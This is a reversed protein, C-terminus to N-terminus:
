GNLATSMVTPPLPPTVPVTGPAGAVPGTVNLLAAIATLTTNVATAWALTPTALAVGAAAVGGVNVPGYITVKPSVINIGDDNLEIFSSGDKNKIVVSNKAGGAMTIAMGASHVVVVSGDGSPDLAITHAKAIAGGGDLTPSYIVIQTGKGDGDSSSALSIFGGDYHVVDVEGDKPNVRKNLRLDRSAVPAFGDDTRSAIAEASGGADTARPRSVVGIVGWLTENDSGEQATPDDPDTLMGRVNVLVNKATASLSSAALKVRSFVSDFM